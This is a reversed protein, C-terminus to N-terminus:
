KGNGKKFEHMLAEISREWERYRGPDRPPPPQLLPKLAVPLSDMMMRMERTRRSIHERLSVPLAEFDELLPATELTGNLIPYNQPIRGAEQLYAMISLNLGAAIEPLWDAPIYERTIWNNLRQPSINLKRAFEAKAGEDTLRRILPM